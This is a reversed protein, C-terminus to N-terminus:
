RKARRRRWWWIGLGLVIVIPWATVTGLVLNKLLGWGDAFASAIKSGFSRHAIGESRTEYLTLYLTSRDVQQSLYRFQAEMSEVEEIVQRLNNEVALVENVNKAQALLEQYRAIVARKSSLRTELDVYRRTVDESNVSRSSVQLALGELANLMSDLRAPALRIVLRNELRQGYQQEEEATIEAEYAEVIAKTEKLAAEYSAVEMQLHATRIVKKEPVSEGPEGSAKAETTQDPMAEESAYSYDSSGSKGDCAMASFALILLPILIRINMKM